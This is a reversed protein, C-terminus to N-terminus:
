PRIQGAVWYIARYVNWLSFLAVSILFPMVVAIGFALPIVTKSPSILLYGAGAILWVILLARALVPLRVLQARMSSFLENPHLMTRGKPARPLHPPESGCNPLKWIKPQIDAVARYLVPQGEAPVELLCGKREGDTGCVGCMM